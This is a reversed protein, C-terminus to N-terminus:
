ALSRAVAEALLFDEPYTIKINIADGDVAAISGGYREILLADDTADFGEAAARRHAEKLVDTRFGQPTQAACLSSRDVTELVRDEEVRKITERLPVVPVAAEAHSLSAVVRRVLEPTAFPRVADHVVVLESTLEALGNAVSGRRSDAGAVVVIEAAVESPFRAAGVLDPPLVVVIPDCGAGILPELAWRLL